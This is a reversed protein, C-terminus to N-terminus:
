YVWPILRWTSNCYNLYDNGFAEKLALEEIQIRNAIAFTIPILMVGISIWNNLCLGLGFFSLLMGLYSPHRIYKYFGSQVIIHNVQIAVNVTFYRRLTLISFWRVELGFIILVLGSIKLVFQNTTLYGFRTFSILVAITVSIYIVLNLRKVSGSDKDQSDNKSRRLLQLLIESAIWLVCVIFFLNSIRMM